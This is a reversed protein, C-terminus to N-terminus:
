QIKARLFYESPELTEDFSRMPVGYMTDNKLHDKRVNIPRDIAQAPNQKDAVILRLQLSSKDSFYWTGNSFTWKPQRSWAEAPIRVALLEFDPEQVKWADVAVAVIGDRDSGAYHDSPLPNERIILERLAGAREKLSAKMANIEGELASVGAPDLVAYLAFKDDITSLQRPIGGTFRLPKQDQVAETAMRDVDKLDKRISSPLSAKQQEAVALFQDYNRLFGNGVGEVRKGQDTQQEMLRAYAQAIRVCEARAAEVQEFAEAARERRERFLPESNSYQISLESLRRMDQDFSPYSAPDVLKQLRVNLPDLYTLVVTLSAEANVLRQKAEAVGEGNAPIKNLGDRVFGAQRRTETANAVASATKRFSISLQDEIPRLEEFLQVYAATEGEVRRLNFLSNKFNDAHPYGLKVTKPAEAKKAPEQKGPEEPKPEPKPDEKKKGTLIGGLKDYLKVAKNYREVADALGKGETLGSLIKRAPEIDGFAQDLRMKALKAASGKPPNTLQGISGDVLKLNAEARKLHSNAQDVKASQSWAPVACFLSFLVCLFWMPSRHFFSSM